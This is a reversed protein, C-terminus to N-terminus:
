IAYIHVTVAMETFIPRIQLDSNQKFFNFFKSCFNLRENNGVYLVIGIIRPLTSRPWWPYDYFRIIHFPWKANM